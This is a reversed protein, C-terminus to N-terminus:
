VSAGNKLLRSRMLWQKVFNVLLLYAVISVLVFGIYPASLPTFGFGHALPTYPLAFAIM